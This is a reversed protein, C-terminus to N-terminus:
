PLENERKRVCARVCVCVFVFVIANSFHQKIKLQNTRAIRALFSHNCYIGMLCAIEDSPHIRTNACCDFWRRWEIWRQVTCSCIYLDQGSVGCWEEREENCPSPNQSRISEFGRTYKDCERWFDHSWRGECPWNLFHFACTVKHRPSTVIHRSNKVLHFSLMHKLRIWPIISYKMAHSRDANSPIHRYKYEFTLIATPMLGTNLALVLGDICRSHQRDAPNSYYSEHSNPSGAWVGPTCM